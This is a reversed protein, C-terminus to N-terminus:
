CGTESTEKAIPYVDLDDAIGSRGSFVEGLEKLANAYREPQDMQIRFHTLILQRVGGREAMAAIEPPTPALDRM